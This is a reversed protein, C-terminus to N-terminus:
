MHPALNFNYPVPALTECNRFASTFLRLRSITINPFTRSTAYDTSRPLVIQAAAQMQLVTGLRLFLLTPTCSRGWAEHLTSSIAAELSALHTLGQSISLSVCTPPTGNARRNSYPRD